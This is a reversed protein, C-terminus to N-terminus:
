KQETKDSAAVKAFGKAFAADSFVLNVQKKDKSKEVRAKCGNCCFEVSLGDIKVATEPNLTKGTLPCKVEKYQGSAVLQENAKTAYKKKNAKFAAPCHDCCFYVQGEKYAVAHDKSAAKGSVPCKLAPADDAAGAGVPICLAATVMVSLFIKRM